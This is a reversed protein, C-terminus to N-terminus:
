GQTCSTIPGTWDSGALTRIAYYDSSSPSTVTYSGTSDAVTAITTWNTSTCSTSSVVQVNPALPQGLTSTATPETWSFEVAPTTTYIVCETNNYLLVGGLYCNVYCITGSPCVVTQPTYTEEVVQISGLVGSASAPAPITAAKVSQAYAPTESGWSALQSARGTVLTVPLAVIAVALLTVKLRKAVLGWM